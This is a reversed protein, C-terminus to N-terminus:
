AVRWFELKARSIYVAKNRQGAKFEIDFHHVGASYTSGNVIIHKFGSTGAFDGQEDGASILSLEETDDLMVRTFIKATNSNGRFEFFWSLRYTGLPISPTTLVLKGSWDTSTTSSETEDEEYTYYQGYIPTASTASLTVVGPSTKVGSLNSSLIIKKTTKEVGSIEIYSDGRIAVLGEAATLDQTGDNIVVSGNGIATILITDVYAAVIWLGTEQQNIEYQSSAPITIGTEKIAIPSLTTNKLIIRM